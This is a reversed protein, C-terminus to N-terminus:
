KSWQSASARGLRGTCHFYSHPTPSGTRSPRWGGHDGQVDLRAPVRGHDRPQQAPVRVGQRDAAGVGDDSIGDLFKSPDYTPASAMAVVGGTKVDIVVAAGAPGQASTRATPRPSRTPSRRRARGGPRGQRHHARHGQGCSARGRALPVGRVRGQNDVEFRRFGKEGRLVTTTSPRSAPRASSTASRALGPDAAGDEDAGRLDRGHLRARPRGALREPVRARRVGRGRRRPLGARARRPLRGDVDPRRRAPRAARAAGAQLLRAAEPDRARPRRHGALAARGAHRGTLHDPAATVAMVPRNTVLPRGKADLIRGRAAPLTSARPDRNQEAAQPSSRARLAGAHEVPARRARRAGRARHDGLVAFRGKLQQRFTNM